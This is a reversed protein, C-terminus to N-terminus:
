ALHVLTPRGLEVQVNDVHATEARDIAHDLSDIMRRTAAIANDIASRGTVAKFADTRRLSSLEHETQAKAELLRQLIQEARDKAAHTEDVLRQKESLVM